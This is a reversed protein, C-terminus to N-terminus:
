NLTVSIPKANFILANVYDGLYEDMKADIREIPNSYGTLYEQLVYTVVKLHDKARLVITLMIIKNHGHVVDTEIDLTAITFPTSADPWKKMYQM